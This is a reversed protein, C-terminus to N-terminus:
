FNGLFTSLADSIKFACIDESQAIKCCMKKLFDHSKGSRVADRHAGLIEKYRDLVLLQTPGRDSCSYDTGDMRRDTRGGDENSGSM